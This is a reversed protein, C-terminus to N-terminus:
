REFNVSKRVDVWDSKASFFILHSYSKLRGAVGLSVLWGADVQFRLEDFAAVDISTPKKEM